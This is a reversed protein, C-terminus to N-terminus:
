RAPRARRVRDPARHAGPVAARGPVVAGLGLRARRAPRWATVDASASTCRGADPDLFGSIVDFLTTKGAGNPGVLGLIEGDHLELSSATSRPSVPSADICTTSGCCSAVRAGAHPAAAPEACRSGRRDGVPRPRHGRRGARPLDLPAGRSPRVAARDPRPLAVRGQDLFLARDAAHLATTVSQEVLM